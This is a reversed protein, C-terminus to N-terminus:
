KKYSIVFNGNGDGKYHLGYFKECQTNTRDNLNESDPVIDLKGDKDVDFIKVWAIWQFVTNEYGNPSSLLQSQTYSNGSKKLVQIKFDDYWGNPNKKPGTLTSSSLNGSTRMLIIEDINDGDLDGFEFDCITGWNDVKPLNIPNNIEFNGKGDGLLIRTNPNQWPYASYEAGGLLIDINGDNNTDHLDVSYTNDTYSGDFLKKKTFNGKGDNLFAYCDRNQNPIPIIDLHNDNNIDGVTGGHTFQNINDLEKIEYSNQKFFIVYNKEGPFPLADFGHGFMAIDDIGDENFDGREIKRDNTQPSNFKWKLNGDVFVFLQSKGCVNVVDIVLDPVNNGNLNLFTRANMGVCDQTSWPFGVLGRYNTFPVFYTTKGEELKIPLLETKKCGLFSTILICILYKRM